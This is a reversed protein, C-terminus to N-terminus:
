FLATIDTPHEVNRSISSLNCFPIEFGIGGVGGVAKLAAEMYGPDDPSLKVRDRFYAIAVRASIDYDKDLLSPNGILDVGSLRGYRTYNGRGTLQIFGRGYFRGGDGPQNNGLQSGNNEPAYVFAFFDERSGKWRAYKAALEPKGGFTKSFISQLAEASYNYGEEQPIWGSEGGAIRPAGRRPCMGCPPCPPIRKLLSPGCGGRGM